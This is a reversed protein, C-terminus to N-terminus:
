QREREREPAKPGAHANEEAILIQCRNPEEGVNVVEVRFVGSYQPAWTGAADPNGSDDKVVHNGDKDKVYLDVDSDTESEVFIYVPKGKDFKLEFSKTQNANIDFPKLEQKIKFLDEGYTIKGKNAGPGLNDVTIKYEQTERPVFTALCNKHVRDDAAVEVDNPDDVYLDVDTEQESDVRLFVRKGKSFTVKFELQGDEELEFSKTVMSAQKVREQAALGGATLAL